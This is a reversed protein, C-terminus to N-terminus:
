FQQVICILMMSVIAWVSIGISYANDTKVVDRETVTSDYSSCSNPLFVGTTSVACYTLQECDSDSLCAYTPECSICDAGGCDVDSEHGDAVNNLCTSPMYRQSFIPNGYVYQPNGTPIVSQISSVLGSPSAAVIRNVFSTYYEITDADSNAFFFLM